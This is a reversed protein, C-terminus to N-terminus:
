GARKFELRCIRDGDAIKSAIKLDYGCAAAIGRDGEMAIDCLLAIEEDACGCKKWADILPCYHFEITLHDADKEVPDAEFVKRTTDPMFPVYFSAMDGIDANKMIKDEATAVGCRFVANRGIKEYDANNKRAEDLLLYLWTARHGFANRLTMTAEDTHEDPANNIKGRREEM